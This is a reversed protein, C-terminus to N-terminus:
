SFSPKAGKAEGDSKEDRRTKGYSSLVTYLSAPSEIMADQGDKEWVALM